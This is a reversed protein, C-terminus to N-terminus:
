GMLHPGSSASLAYLTRYGFQGLYLLPQRFQLQLRQKKRRKLGYFHNGAEQYTYYRIIRAVFLNCRFTYTENM